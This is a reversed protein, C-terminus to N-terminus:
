TVVIKDKNVEFVKAGVGKVNMIDEPKEFPHATRYEIIREAIKEGVYKLTMLEEKSATNINVTGTDAMAPVMICAMFVGILLISITRKFNKMQNGGLNQFKFFNRIVTLSRSM